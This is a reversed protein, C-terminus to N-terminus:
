KLAQTLWLLGLTGGIFIAIMGAIYLRDMMSQTPRASEFWWSLSGNRGDARDVDRDPRGAKSGSWFARGMNMESEENASGRGNDHWYGPEPPTATPSKSRFPAYPDSVWTYKEFTM